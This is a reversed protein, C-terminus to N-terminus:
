RIATLETVAKMVAAVPIEQLCRSLSTLSRDCGELLCPVCDGQGQILHVNGRRGGGVRPWPSEPGQWGKPWPGWKVPNSPGFLAVTAVGTAAAIHTVATDPGVFLRARAVIEATEALSLVGALNLAQAADAIGACYAIEDADPGGTLVIRLGLAQLRHALELWNETRWMKYAYKPFPHLVAYPLGDLPALRALTNALKEPAVAPPVVQYTPTIGLLGTLKEGMAVTHTDRDDFPLSRDLMWGKGREEPTMFGVRFCGGVRGYLRARDTPLTAAALDYHRWLRRFQALKGRWDTRQPFALVQSIDPNGALVGETGKFALFDLEAQPWARKLSRALPTALLVDGIRQTCVLLIRRPPHFDFPPLIM